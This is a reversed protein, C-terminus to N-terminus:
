KFKLGFIHFALIKPDKNHLNEGLYHNHSICMLPIVAMSLLFSMFIPKLAVTKKTHM